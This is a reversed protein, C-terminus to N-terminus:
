KILISIIDTKDVEQVITEKKTSKRGQLKLHYTRRFRRKLHLSCSVIHWFFAVKVWYQLNVTGRIPLIEIYYMIRNTEHLFATLALYKCTVRSRNIPKWAIYLLAIGTVPWPPRYPQSVNLIAYQRPLRSVYPPLNTLGVCRGREGTPNHSTSSRM